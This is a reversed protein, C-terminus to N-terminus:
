KVRKNTQKFVGLTFRTRIYGVLNKEISEIKKKKKKKNLSAVTKTYRLRTQTCFASSINGPASEIV